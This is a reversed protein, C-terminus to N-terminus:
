FPALVLLGFGFAKASGIGKCFTSHFLPPDTVELAGTFEAVNHTGHIATGQRPTKTFRQHENWVDLLPEDCVRFGGATGKRDLWAHLETTGTIPERRGNKKRVGAVDRVVRKVTPNARLQFRYRRAQFFSPSIPRSDWADREELWNPRLPLLPSVILLQTGAPKDDLRTLFDRPAGDRGPFARWVLQHWAYTDRIGRGVITRASIVARTLYCAEASM